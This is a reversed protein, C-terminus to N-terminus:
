FRLVPTGTEVTKHKNIGSSAGRDLHKFIDSEQHRRHLTRQLLEGERSSVLVTVQLFNRGPSLEPFVWFRFGPEM